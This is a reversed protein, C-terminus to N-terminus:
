RLKRREYYPVYCDRYIGYDIIMPRLYVDDKTQIEKPARKDNLPRVYEQIPKIPKIPMEPQIYDIM